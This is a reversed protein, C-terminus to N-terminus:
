YSDTITPIHMSIQLVTYSVITIKDFLQLVYLCIVNTFLLLVYVYLFNYRRMGGTSLLLSTSVFFAVIYM